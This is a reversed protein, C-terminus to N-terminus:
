SMNSVISFSLVNHVPLATVLLKSFYSKGLHTFSQTLYANPNADNQLRDPDPDADVYFNPDPVSAFRVVTKGEACFLCALTIILRADCTWSCNKDGEIHGENLSLAYARSFPHSKQATPGPNPFFLSRSLFFLLLPGFLIVYSYKSRHSYLLVTYVTCRM